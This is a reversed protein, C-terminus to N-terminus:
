TGDVGRRSGTAGEPPQSPRTAPTKGKTILTGFSVHVIGPNEFVQISAGHPMQYLITLGPPPVVNEFPRNVTLQQWQVTPPLWTPQRVWTPYRSQAQSWTICVPQGAQPHEQYYTCAVQDGYPLRWPRWILLSAGVMVVLLAGGGLWLRRRRIRDREERSVM